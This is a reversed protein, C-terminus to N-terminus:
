APSIDIYYVNGVKFRGTRHLGLTLSGSPTFEFFAENEESDANVVEFVVSELEADTADSLISVCKFKCRTGM